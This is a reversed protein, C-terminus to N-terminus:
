RGGAGAEEVVKQEVGNARRRKSVGEGARHLWEFLVQCVAVALVAMGIGLWGLEGRSSSMTWVFQGVCLAAVVLLTPKRGVLEVVIAGLPAGLAVVPAAALWNGFVAPNVDDLLAKFGIGVVSTFAMLIVSTPIAVRLDARCLMVLVTYILMDIGVGTSAAVTAGGLLGVALGANRDFRHAAVPMGSHSAIENIRYFHLVGFSCWIVAFTVKILLEPVQPAIFLIGLPTGILSGLMAWRLMGWEVPRRRCIIYIGASVMGISQVAFSFDRGLTAPQDFLLVLVPFGVTGGGMPTSGAFYSGAAMAVSMGWNDALQHWLQGFALLGLWVTYFVLLWCGFWRMRRPFPGVIAGWVRRALPPPRHRNTERNM